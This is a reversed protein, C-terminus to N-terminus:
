CRGFHLIKLLKEASAGKKTLCDAIMEEGTVKWLKSLEQEELSQKLKAVDARLRPNDVLSTSMVSRHLNRSDTFLEIPVDRAVDGLLEKLVEKLYVLEDLTDNSALAEAATSSSVVRRLKRSRWSVICRKGIKKNVIM